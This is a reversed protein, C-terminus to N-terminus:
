KFPSFALKQQFYLLVAVVGILSKVFLQVGVVAIKLLFFWFFPLFGLKETTFFWQFLWNKTTFIVPLFALTQQL